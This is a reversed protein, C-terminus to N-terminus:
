KAQHPQHSSAAPQCPSLPYKIIFYKARGPGIYMCVYRPPSREHPISISTPRCHVLAFTDKKNLFYKIEAGCPGNYRSGHDVASISDFKYALPRYVPSNPDPYPLSLSKRPQRDLNSQERFLAGRDTCGVKTSLCVSMGRWAQCSFSGNKAIAAARYWVWWVGDCRQEQGYLHCCHLRSCVWIVWSSRRLITSCFLRFSDM